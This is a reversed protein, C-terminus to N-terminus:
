VRFIRRQFHCVALAVTWPMTHRIHVGSFHLYSL